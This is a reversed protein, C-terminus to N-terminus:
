KFEILYAVLETTGVNEGTHTVADRWIVDGTKYEVEKSQGDPTTSRFRGGYVCILIGPAHSHMAEKNGPKSRYELV